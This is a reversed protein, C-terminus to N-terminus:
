APARDPVVRYGAEEIAAEIRSFDVATEDYAVSAFGIGVDRVELGNVRALEKRVAKVCHQCSMGKINITREKM